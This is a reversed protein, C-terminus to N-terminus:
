KRYFMETEIDCLIKFNYSDDSGDLILQMGMFQDGIVVSTDKYYYYMLSELFKRGIFLFKPKYGKAQLEYYQRLIKREHEKGQGDDRITYYSATVETRDLEKADINVPTPLKNIAFQLRDM